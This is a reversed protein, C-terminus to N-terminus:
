VPRAGVKWSSDTPRVQSGAATGPPRCAIPSRGGPTGGPRGAGRPAARRHAALLAEAARARIEGMASAARMPSEEDMPRGGPRGLMCLNDLVVLRAGARGAAAVLNEVFRPVLSAWARREYGPPNMCHYVVAAGRAAEACFAADTADGRVLEAGPAV